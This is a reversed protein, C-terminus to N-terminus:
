GRSRFNNRAQPHGATDGQAHTFAHNVPVTSVGERSTTWAHNVLGEKEREGHRLIDRPHCHPCDSGAQRRCGQAGGGGM